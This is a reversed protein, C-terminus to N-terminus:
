LFVSNWFTALMEITTISITTEVSYAMLASNGLISPPYGDKESAVVTTKRRMRLVARVTRDILRRYAVGPMFTVGMTLNESPSNRSYKSKRTPSM